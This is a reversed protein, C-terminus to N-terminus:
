SSITSDIFSINKPGHFPGAYNITTVDAIFEIPETYLITTVVDTCGNADNVNVTYSFGAPLDDAITDGMITNGVNNSWSIDYGFVNNNEVGGDITVEAWGDNSGFCSVQYTSSPNSETVSIM